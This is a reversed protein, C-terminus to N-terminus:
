VSQPWIFHGAFIGAVFFWYPYYVGGTQKIFIGIYVVLFATAALLTYSPLGYEVIPGARRVWFFHGGLVGWAYAILPFQRAWYKIVESITDRPIGNLAVVFDWGIAIITVAVILGM